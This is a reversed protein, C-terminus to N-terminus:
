MGDWAWGMQALWITVSEYYKAMEDTALETTSQIYEVMTEGVYKHQRLFKYGALLHLEDPTYGFFMAANNIMAWYLRNQQLSRSDKSPQIVV